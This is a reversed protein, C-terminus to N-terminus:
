LVGEFVEAAESMRKRNIGNAVGLLNWISRLYGPSRLARNYHEIVANRGNFGRLELSPYAGPKRALRQHVRTGPMISFRNVM